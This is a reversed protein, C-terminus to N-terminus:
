GEMSELLERLQSETLDDLGVAMTYVPASYALSDLMEALELGDLAELGQVSGALSETTPPGGESGNRSAFFAVGLVLVVTAAVRVLTSRTWAPRARPGEARLRAIVQQAMREPDVSAARRAGLQEALREIERESM